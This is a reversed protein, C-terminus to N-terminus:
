KLWMWFQARGEALAPNNPDDTAPLGYNGWWLAESMPGNPGDGTYPQAKVRGQPTLVECPNSLSYPEAAGIQEAGLIEGMNGLAEMEPAEQSLLGKVRGWAAFFDNAGTLQVLQTQVEAASNGSIELTGLSVESRLTIM